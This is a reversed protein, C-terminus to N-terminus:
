GRGVLSLRHSQLRRRESVLGELLERDSRRRQVVTRISQEIEALQANIDDVIRSRYDQEEQLM